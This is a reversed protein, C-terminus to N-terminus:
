QNNILSLIGDAIERPSFGTLVSKSKGRLQEAAGAFLTSVIPKGFCLAEALTICFGEHRSPQVYIDCDRMFGYPNTQLGLFCVHDSVCLSDALERCSKLEKGEGVFYWKVHAEADLLLRLALIAEKQGKEASFRGVTLLRTGSYIDLFTPATEAQLLIQDNQVINHYVDTKDKFQPFLKVFIDRAEQSVVYIKDYKQYLRKTMGRDIGFHSVDFHIWGYKEKAQVKECVYYDIMQSPGAYAVAIDFSKPLVPEKRLLFRYLGYYSGTIKMRIYQFLLIVAEGWRGQRFFRMITQRPPDNIIPWCDDYANIIHVIVHDPIQDM